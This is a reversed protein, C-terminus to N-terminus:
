QDVGQFAYCGVTDAEWFKTYPEEVVRGRSAYSHIITGEGSYIAVHCPRHHQRIVFIDGALRDSLRKIRVGAERFKTIFLNGRTSRPYNPEDYHPLGLDIAVLVLLGM